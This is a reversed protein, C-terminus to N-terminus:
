MVEGCYNCKWQRNTPSWRLDSSGCNPCTPIVGSCNFPLDIEELENGSTQLQNFNVTIQGQNEVRSSTIKM